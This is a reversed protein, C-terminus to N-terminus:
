YLQTTSILVLVDLKYRVYLIFLRFLTHQYGFQFEIEPLLPLYKLCFLFGVPNDRRM